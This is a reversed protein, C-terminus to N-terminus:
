YRGRLAFQFSVDPASGPRLDEYVAFELALGPSVQWAGGLGGQLSWGGIQKLDSNVLETHGDLQAKLTLRATVPWVLTWHGFGAFDRLRGAVLDDKGPRLVGLTFHSSLGFGAFVERETLNLGLAVDVGDSGTLRSSRGVPLEADLRLALDRAPSRHLSRAMGIRVDAPGTHSDELLLRRQGDADWVMRLRDRPAADRGGEPLGFWDHWQDIFGDLFGGSQRMGVLEVSGAWHAGFGREFRAVVTTTEGDILVAERPSTSSTFHSALELLLDAHVEGSAPLVASRARPLGFLAAVPGSNRWLFPAEGPSESRADALLLLGAFFVGIRLAM